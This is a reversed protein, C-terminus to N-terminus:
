IARGVILGLAAAAIGLILPVIAVAIKRTPEREDDIEVMWTSFTTFGGLVGATLPQADFTAISINLGYAVGLAFSGVINVVTTGIPFGADTAGLWLTTLWRLVAGVGGGIVILAVIM